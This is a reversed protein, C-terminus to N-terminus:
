WANSLGALSNPLALLLKDRQNQGCLVIALKSLPSQPVALDQAGVTLQDLSAVMALGIRFAGIAAVQAARDRSIRGSGPHFWTLGADRSKPLRATKQKNKSTLSIHNFFL